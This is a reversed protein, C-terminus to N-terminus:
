RGRYASALKPVLQQPTYRQVYARGREGMERRLEADDALRRIAQAAAAVDDVPFLLGADAGGVLERYAPIDSAVVPIGNMMAEAAIRGFSESRSPCVVIDCSAFARRVDLTRGPLTVDLELSAADLDEWPQRLEVPTHPTPPAVYLALGVDDRAVERIVPALLDFGKHIAALGLYGVRVGDHPRPEGVVDAPDVPNPVVAVDGVDLRLTDALTRRASDSVALWRVRRGVRRWLWALAGATPSSQSAHAWVTLRVHGILMAPASLNLESQGNAHIAVIHRRHRRVYRALVVAAQLRSRRRLRQDYPMVLHDHISGRRQALQVLAGEPAFLVRDIEDDLHDLVTLLSRAPGGIGRSMSVFVVTERVPTFPAPRRTM